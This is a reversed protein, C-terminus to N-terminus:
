DLPPPAKFIFRFPSAMENAIPIHREDHPKTKACFAEGCGAAADPEM